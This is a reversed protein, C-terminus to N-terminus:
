GSVRVTRALPRDAVSRGVTLRFAGPENDWAGDATSWHQFARAALRVEAVALQGPDARVVAFGALWLLPRDVASDTRSLYAQVVEKGRRQGRNRVRIRVAVDQRARVTAPADVTEYSWTTYGLGHGFPFAPSRGTRLWARYGVHLGEAYEVRGDVPRTSLVPVDDDRDPWTCPLRGGPEVDGLLVDALATGFEQGPFWCLLIAAVEDRWPMAVPAGANVVVVTRPNAAAVAGVLEDQSGPLALTARDRGETEIQETTGVVVIAVDAARAADVASAFEDADSRRPARVGLVVQALDLEPDLRHVLRLDVEEGDSLDREVWRQPPDLFRAAFGDGDPRVVEDAIPEGDLTFTFAGVGVFGLRWRGAAAARFRASLEVTAGRLMEEGFWVLRGLTRHEARLLRGDPGRYRV